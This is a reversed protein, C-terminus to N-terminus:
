AATNKEKKGNRHSSIHSLHGVCGIERIKIHATKRKQWQAINDNKRVHHNRKKDTPCLRDLRYLAGHLLTFSKKQDSLFIGLDIIRFKLIEVLDSGQTLDDLHELKGVAGDLHQDLPTLTGTDQTEDGVVIREIGVNLFEGFIDIFGRRGLGQDASDVVSKFFVDTQTFFYRRFHHGGNGTNEVRRPQGIGDDSMKIDTDVVLLRDEGSEIGM